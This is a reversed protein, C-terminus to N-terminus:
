AASGGLDVAKNEVPCLAGPCADEDCLRCIHDAIERSQTLGSLLAAAVDGFAIRQRTELGNLADALVSARARLILSRTRRGKPTLRLLVQRKDQGPDRAVLGLDVLSEVLRVAVSHTLGLVKALAGITTGPYPGLTVLAACASTGLGAASQAAVEQADTVALSLAGLLNAIQTDHM